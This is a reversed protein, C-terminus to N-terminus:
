QMYRKTPPALDLTTIIDSTNALQSKMEEGSINKVEDVILKRKRKAKTVGKLASADVPALAFSEEENNLLTTQENFNGDDEANENAANAANVGADHSQGAPPMLVDTNEINAAASPPRSLAPSSFPLRCHEPFEDFRFIRGFINGQRHQRHEM